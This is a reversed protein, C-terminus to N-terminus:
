CQPCQFQTIENCRLNLHLDYIPLTQEVNFLIGLIVNMQIQILFIPTKGTRETNTVSKDLSTPCPNKKVLVLILM